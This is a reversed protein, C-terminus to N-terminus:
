KMENNNELFQVHAPLLNLLRRHRTRSAGSKRYRSDTGYLVDLLRCWNGYNGQGTKHHYDHAQSNFM